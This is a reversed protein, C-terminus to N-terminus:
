PGGTRMLRSLLDREEAELQMIREVEHIWILQEETSRRRGRAADLRAQSARRERELEEAPDWSPSEPGPRPQPPPIVGFLRLVESAEEDWIHVPRTQRAVDALSIGETTIWNQLSVPDIHGRLDAEGPRETRAVVGPTVRQGGRRGGQAYTDIFGFLHVLEHAVVRVRNPALHGSALSITGTTGDGVSPGADPGRVEILFANPSRPSGPSLFTVTPAARFQLGAYEGTQISTQWADSIASCINTIDSAVRARADADSLALYTVQIPMNITVTSGSQAASAVRRVTAAVGSHPFTRRSAEQSIADSRVRRAIEASSEGRLRDTFAGAHEDTSRRTVERLTRLQTRVEALRARLRVPDDDRQVQPAVAHLAPFGSRSPAGGSQQVVHALEHALLSRGAATEPRYMGAGFVIDRGVTFARAHMAGAADAAREDAHIRVRSFDHGFRPELDHRVLAPLSTGVGGPVARADSKSPTPRVISASPRHKADFRVVM